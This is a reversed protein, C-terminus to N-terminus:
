SCLYRAWDEATDVDWQRALEHHSILAHKARRRTEEMVKENSWTIDEFLVPQQANLGILVYGGDEAPALYRHIILKVLFLFYSQV